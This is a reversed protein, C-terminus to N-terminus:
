GAAVFRTRLRMAFAELEPFADSSDAKLVVGRM